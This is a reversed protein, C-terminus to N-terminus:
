IKEYKDLGEFFIKLEELQKSLEPIDLERCYASITRLRRDCSEPATVKNITLNLNYVDSMIQLLQDKTVDSPSFIHHLDHWKFINNNIIREICKAFQLTTIGNWLHNTYGNVTKGAQSKAWELLSRSQGREEGIISTRLVLMTAPDEGANKSMGYLDTSDFLSREDYPGTIGSYVCDTTIHVSFRGLDKCIKGLNRPFISNIKIVDEISMDKIRPKIVGSCNIVIDSQTILPLIKSIDDKAIDFENRSVGIVDYSKSKFYSYVAIGLMGKNGIVLIKM